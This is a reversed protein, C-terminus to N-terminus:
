RKKDRKRFCIEIIYKFDIQPLMSIREALKKKESSTVTTFNNLNPAEYGENNKQSCKPKNKPLQYEAIKKNLDGLKKQIERIM